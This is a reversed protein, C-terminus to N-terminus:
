PNKLLYDRIGRTLQIAEADSCADVLTIITDLEKSDMWDGWYRDRADLFKKYAPSPKGKKSDLTSLTLNFFHVLFIMLQLDEKKAWPPGFATGLELRLELKRDPDM